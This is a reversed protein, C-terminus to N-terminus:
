QFIMLPQQTDPWAPVPSSADKILLSPRLPTVKKASTRGGHRKRRFLSGQSGFDSGVSAPGTVFIAFGVSTYALLAQAGLEHALGSTLPRIKSLHFDLASSLMRELSMHLSKGQLRALGPRSALHCLATTILNGGSM